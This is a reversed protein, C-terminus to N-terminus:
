GRQQANKKRLKDIGDVASQTDEAQKELRQAKLKESRKRMEKMREAEMGFATLPKASKDSFMALARQRKGTVM